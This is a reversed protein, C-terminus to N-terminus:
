RVDGDLERRIECFYGTFEGAEVLMTLKVAFDCMIRKESTKMIKGSTGESWNSYFEHKEPQSVEQTAVVFPSSLSGYLGAYLRVRM